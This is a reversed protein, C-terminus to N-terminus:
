APRPDAIVRVVLGATRGQRVCDETGRGGPFAVLHTAYTVMQANRLPGARRGLSWNAPFRRVAWGREAAYREGLADAGPAGGSVIEVFSQRAFIADLKRKLLPWDDFERGGCVICRIM